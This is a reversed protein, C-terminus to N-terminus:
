CNGTCQLDSAPLRIDGSPIGFNAPLPPNFFLDFLKLKYYLASRSLGLLECQRYLAIKKKGFEIAKRKEEISLDLNKKLWDLEVKLQGIQRYM